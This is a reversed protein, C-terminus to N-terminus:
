QNQSVFQELLGAVAEAAEQLLLHAADLFEAECGCLRALEEVKEPTIAKDHRGGIVSAPVTLGDLAPRVDYDIMARLGSEIPTAGADVVQRVTEERFAEATTEHTYNDVMTRAWEERDMEGFRELFYSPSGTEPEPTSACTGLLFLGGLNDHNVAYTLAVMGGMSHGALIPDEFGHQEILSHLDDALDDFDFAECPSDGHCRQDYFLLPNDVNLHERVQQWSATSGLWGHLFVLPTGDGAVSQTTLDDPDM